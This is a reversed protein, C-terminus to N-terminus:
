SRPIAQSALATRVCECLAEPPFPKGLCCHIGAARARLRLAEDDYATILITVVGDGAAALAEHLQLGSMGTMRMDAVLCSIGHRRKAGLFAEASSFTTVRFGAAQLLNRTARRMSADDDVIAVRSATPVLAGSLVRRSLM